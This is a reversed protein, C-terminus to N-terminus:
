ANGAGSKMAQRDIWSDIARKAYAPVPKGREHQSVYVGTIGIESAVAAQSMGFATRLTRLNFEGAHETKMHAMLNQFTRNCCPCVGNMVRVRMRNHARAVDDREAEIKRRRAEEAERMQKQREVEGRLKEAESPGTYHQGHGQPCYFSKHDDRRARQLDMTMAFPMRCNCCHEVYFEIGAAFTSM